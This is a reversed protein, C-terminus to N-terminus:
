EKGGEKKEELLRAVDALRPDISVQECGCKGENLDQGCHACLGACDPKCLARYPLTLLAYEQIAETLDLIDGSYTSVEAFIEATEEDAQKRGANREFFEEEFPTQLQLSFPKLCRDCYLEVNCTLTGAVVLCRGTNTVKAKVHIPSVAKVDDDWNVSFPPLESQTALTAGLSKRLAGINIKM